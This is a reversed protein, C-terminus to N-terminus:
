RTTPAERLRAPRAAARDDLARRQPMPRLSAAGRRTTIPMASRWRSRMPPMARRGRRQGAAPHAGDDRGPAERRRRHRRGRAQGDQLRIRDVPLGAHAAALMCSAARRASSSRHARRQRQGRDGRDGRRRASAARRGGAARSLACGPAGGPSRRCRSVVVGAARFRLLNGEAEIVGWGTRQLGPDLGLLRMLRVAARAGRRRVRLQEVVRQVDDNEDLTELLKFLTEAQDADVPVAVQPRWGLRAEEPPGLRAELAERVANLDDPACVIEHGDESSQCDEAGAEIAAELMADAIPPRPPM